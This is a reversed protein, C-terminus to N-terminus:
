LTQKGFMATINHVAASGAAKEAIAAASRAKARENIAEKIKKLDGWFPGLGPMKCKSAYKLNKEYEAFARRLDPTSPGQSAPQQLINTIYTYITNVNEFAKNCADTNQMEVEERITPLKRSRRKTGITAGTYRSVTKRSRTSRRLSASKATKRSGIATRGAKRTMLSRGRSRAKNLLSQLNATLKPM